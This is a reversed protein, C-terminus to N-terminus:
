FPVLVSFFSLQRSVMASFQLLNLGTVSALRTLPTGLADYVVPATSTVLALGSATLPSFGLGILIAGTVAVPIDFGAVGEFFADFSLAVM